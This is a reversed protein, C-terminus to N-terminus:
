CCSEEADDEGSREASVSFCFCIALRLLGRVMWEGQGECAVEPSEDGFRANDDRSWRCCDSSAKWEVERRVLGTYAWLMPRTLESVECM